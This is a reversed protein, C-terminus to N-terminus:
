ARRDAGRDGVRARRDGAAHRHDGRGPAPPGAADKRLFANQEALTENLRKLERADGRGRAAPRPAPGAPHGGPDAAARHGQQRGPGRGADGSSPSYVVALWREVCWVDALWRGRHRRRAIMKYRPMAESGAGAARGGRAADGRLARPSEEGLRGRQEGPRPASRATPSRTLRDGGVGLGVLYDVRPAPASSASPSTTTSPGASTATGRSRSRPRAITRCGSRRAEGAHARPKTASADGPRVRLPRRGAPRRGVRHRGLLRDARASDDGMPQVDPGADVPVGAPRPGPRRPLAPASSQARIPPCPPSASRAAAPRAPGPRGRPALCWRGDPVANCNPRMTGGDHTALLWPVTGLRAPRQQRPRRGPDGRQPGDRDAVAIQWTGGRKCAFVLHRGNPAWTPYECSGAARRSRGCRGPRSTSWRSRSARGRPALHLRDRQTSRPRTGPRARRELQRRDHAPAREARRQGDRLDAAHGARDSTFAIEHGTPSWSPATDLAPAPPSRARRERATPTPSGSRWTGAGTARTPSGSATPASRPLSPSPGSRRDLNPTRGKSSRPSSSTPCARGTPSTPRAVRGDPSWTPLINLSRNVTVRRPNFGDYDVIYLEKSRRRRRPPRSRSTFAIKSRAVGKYRPWPWSRTPPRIPSCARTTPAGPTASPPMTQGIDVTYVAVGRDARRRHGAARTIVLINAGM